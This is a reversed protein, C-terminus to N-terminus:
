KREQRIQYNHKYPGYYDMLDYGYMYSLYWLRFLIVGMVVLILCVIRKTRISYKEM